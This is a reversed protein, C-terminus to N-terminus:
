YSVGLIHAIARCDGLDYSHDIRRSSRLKLQHPTNWALVAAHQFFEQGPMPQIKIVEFLRQRM